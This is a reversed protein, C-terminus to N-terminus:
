NTNKHHMIAATIAAIKNSNSKSATTKTTQTPQPEPFYKTIIKAQAIMAGIMIILFTLVTGMGLIMFKFGEVVLNVEEM